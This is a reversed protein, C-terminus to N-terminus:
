PASGPLQERDNKHILEFLLTAARTITDAAQQTPMAGAFEGLDNAVTNVRAIFDPPAPKSLYAAMTGWVKREGDDLAEFADVECNQALHGAVYLSYLEKGTM